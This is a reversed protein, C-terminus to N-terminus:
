SASGEIVGLGFQVLDGLEDVVHGSREVLPLCGGVHVM